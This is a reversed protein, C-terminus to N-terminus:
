TRAWRGARVRPTSGRPWAASSRPGGAAALPWCTPLPLPLGMGAAPAELRALTGAAAFLVPLLGDDDDPTPFLRRRPRKHDDFSACPDEASGRKPAPASETLSGTQAGCVDLAGECRWQLVDRRRPRECSAAAGSGSSAAPWPMNEGFASHQVNGQCHPRRADFM